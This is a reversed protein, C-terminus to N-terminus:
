SRSRGQHTPYPWTHPAMPSKKAVNSKRSTPYKQPQVPRTKKNKRPLPRKKSISFSKQTNKKVQLQWFEWNEECAGAASWSSCPRWSSAQKVSAENHLKETLRPLAGTQCIKSMNYHTKSKICCSFRLKGGSAGEASAFRKAVECSPCVSLFFADSWGTPKVSNKM